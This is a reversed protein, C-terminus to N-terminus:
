KFIKNLEKLIEDETKSEGDVISEIITFLDDDSLDEKMVFSGEVFSGEVSFGKVKGTKIFDEWVDENDIKFSVMWTGDEIDEYNKGGTKNNEKDVIWSEFVTVGKIVESTHNINSSTPNSNKFFLEAAKRVTEKSFYVMYMDGNMDIRPIDINPIMSPGTIIHMDSDSVEFKQLKPTKKKTEKNFYFFDVEIAPDEVLSIFDLSSQEDDLLLEIREMNKHKKYNNNKLNQLIKFNHWRM